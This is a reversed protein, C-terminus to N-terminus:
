GDCFGVASYASLLSGYDTCTQGGVCDPTDLNCLQVCCTDGPEDGCQSAETCVHGLGCEAVASCPEDNITDSALHCAFGFGAPLCGQGPLCSGEALPDCIEGCAGVNVSGPVTCLTGEPCSGANCLATCVGELTRRSELGTPTCALGVGCTDIGSVFSGEAMCAEGIAAPQDSVPVCRVSNWIIGGDNAWPSCKEQEFCDQDAFNCGFNGGPGPPTPCTFGCSGTTGYGEDAGDTEWPSAGTSSSSDSASTTGPSPAGTSRGTDVGAPGSSGSTGSTGGETVAATCGGLLALSFLTLRKM